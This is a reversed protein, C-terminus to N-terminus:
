KWFKLLTGVLGWAASVGITTALVIGGVKAKYKVNELREDSLTKLIDAHLSQIVLLREQVKTLEIVNDRLAALEASKICTHPSSDM